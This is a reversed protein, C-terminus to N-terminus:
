RCGPSWSTGARVRCRPSCSSSASCPGSIPGRLRRPGPGRPGGPSGPPGSPKPAPPPAPLDALTAQDAASLTGPRSVLTKYIVAGSPSLVAELTGPAQGTGGCNGYGAPESPQDQDGDGRTMQLYTSTACSTWTTTAAQLQDSLSSMLSNNLSQATVVSIAVSALAFLVVLGIILKGSITRFSLVSALRALAARRPRQAGPAPM